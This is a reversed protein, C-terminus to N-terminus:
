FNFYIFASEGRSHNIAALLFIGVCMAGAVLLQERPSPLRIRAALDQTSPAMWVIALGAALWLPALQAVHTAPMGDGGGLGSMSCLMTWAGSLTEARFLVWAVVVATFTLATSLVVTALGSRGSVTRRATAGATARRWLHNAVLYAGHLGGWAVFTWSAGHWLGGLLMTILLNLYRQLEGHRNGGLPIYLYDRLFQSLTMHWRRWFEIINRAKYPSDFNLPLQVNFMRSVGIAMDCYGSFDFYLQLTYALAGFWATLATPAVGADASAFVPDAYASFTDALLVKKALGVAFIALGVAINNASPTYIRADAFQPMIQGHHLVPGAILHPFYSVFLVYHVPDYERAHGRYVDVLFAIQTFTFFSIGLPLVINANPVTLGAVANVTNVAFDTYKFIALLGLDGVLAAILVRKANIWPGTVGRDCGRVRLMWLSMAYNFAISGLLLLVFRPSWYGYFLVSAAALWFAALRPHARALAFFLVCTLPLYLTIFLFSNFLM